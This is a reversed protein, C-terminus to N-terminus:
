GFIGSDLILSVGEPKRSQKYIYNGWLSSGMAGASIGSVVLRDADFIKLKEELYAISTLTNNSGRFYLSADKYELPEFRTGEHYSGDCYPFYAKTWNHFLPNRIPDPSLFTNKPFM